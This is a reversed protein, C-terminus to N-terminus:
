SPALLRHLEARRGLWPNAQVIRSKTAAIRRLNPLHYRDATRSDSSLSPGNISYHLSPCENSWCEM